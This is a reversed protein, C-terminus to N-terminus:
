AYVGHHVAAVMCFIWRHNLAILACAPEARSAVMANATKRKTLVANNGPYFQKPM